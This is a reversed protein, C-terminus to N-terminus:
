LNWATLHAPDHLVSYKGAERLSILLFLIRWNMISCRLDKGLVCSIEQHESNLCVSDSLVLAIWSVLELILQGLQM